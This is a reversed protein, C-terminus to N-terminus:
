TPTDVADWDAYEFHTLWNLAKRRETIVGEDLGDPSDRNELRAQRAIWHLRYHLDMIDLIESPQRLAAAAIFADLDQGVITQVVGAVDCIATPYTLDDVRGLTWLLLNLAEYRWAMQIILQREPAPDAIFDQEAPSLQAFAQPIRQRLDALPLPEDTALAEARLAVLFLGLARGAVDQPPRLHLEEEGLVPPLQKMYALERSDFFAHTRGRRDLASRPFPIRADADPEGDPNVIVLGDPDRVKGDPTFVVANSAAAWPAFADLAGDAVDIAIQHQVRQIHRMLHYIKQSLQGGTKDHVYGLFGQLHEALQADSRDRRSRLTHDFDPEPPHRHTCYVNFLM